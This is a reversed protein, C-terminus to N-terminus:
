YRKILWHGATNGGVFVNGFADGAIANPPTVAGGNQFVDVTTWPGTGGASKRVIWKGAGSGAVVLNGSADTAVCRAISSNDAVLQYDDVTTWSNGGNTSKRVIWHSSTVGKNLNYAHGVVYIGSGNAGIGMAVASKSSALQFTDVNSWTAGGDTSRRVLWANSTQGAVFMGFTPHVFVDAPRSNLVTDVTSFSTGGVGKRVTWLPYYYSGSKYFDCGSVYVNGTADAAMGIDDANADAPAKVFEDVTTWTAGGDTSRRVYWQAYANSFEDPYSLGSVYLNGAQDSTIAGGLDFAGFFDVHRGPPAFDDLLSWSNGSDSSSLVLQSWTTYTNGVAYIPGSPSAALGWSSANPYSLVLTGSSPQPPPPPPPPKGAFAAHTFLATAALLALCTPRTMGHPGSSHSHVNESSQPACPVARGVVPFTFSATKMDNQTKTKKNDNNQTKEKRHISEAKGHRVVGTGSLVGRTLTYAM